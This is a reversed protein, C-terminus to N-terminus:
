CGRRSRSCRQLTRRSQCAAPSQQPIAPAGWNRRRKSKRRRDMEPPVSWDDVWALDDVRVEFVRSPAKKILVLGAGAIAAALALRYKGSARGGCGVVIVRTTM